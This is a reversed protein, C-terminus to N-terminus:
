TGIQLENEIFTIVGRDGDTMNSFININLSLDPIFYSSFGVGCDSGRASYSKRNRFDAIYLGLGYKQSSFMEVEENTMEVLSERSILRHCFLNTWFAQMDESNSYLGGDGGGRIPLQYINSVKSDGDSMYGWATNKPLENFAYFGTSRMGLPKFVNQQMFDRYKQGSIKEILVGLLVYGGNSYSTRTGPLFKMGKSEFLTLYDSPTELKFWPIEVSYNEFDEIQEEDYYDYIGSTHNLLHRITVDRHIFGMDCGLIEVVPTSLKTPSSELLCMIGIATLTKTGSATGFLTTINNPITNPLDRYGFSNLYVSNQGEYISVVGSFEKENLFEDIKEQM